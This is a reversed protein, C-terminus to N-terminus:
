DSTMGLYKDQAENAIKFTVLSPSQSVPHGKALIISTTCIILIIKTVYYYDIINFNM